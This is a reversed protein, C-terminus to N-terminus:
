SVTAVIWFAQSSPYFGLHHRFPQGGFASASGHFLSFSKTRQQKLLCPNLPPLKQIVMWIFERVVLATWGHFQLTVCEITSLCLVPSWRGPNSHCVNRNQSLPQTLCGQIDREAWLKPWGIHKLDPLANLLYKLCPTIKRTHETAWNHRVRQLEM